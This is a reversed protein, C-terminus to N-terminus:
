PIRLHRLVGQQRLSKYGNELLKQKIGGKYKSLPSRNMILNNKYCGAILKDPVTTPETSDDIIV